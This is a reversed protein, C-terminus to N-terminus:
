DSWIAEGQVAIAIRRRIAKTMLTLRQDRSYGGRAFIDEIERAAEDSMKMMGDPTRAITMQEIKRQATALNQRLNTMAEDSDSM